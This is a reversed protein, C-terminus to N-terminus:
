RQELQKGIGVCVLICCCPFAGSSDNIQVGNVVAVPVKRYSSFGLQGKLVPDVEVVVYPIRAHDLYARVKNGAFSPHRLQPWDNILRCSCRCAM